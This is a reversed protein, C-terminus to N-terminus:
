YISSMHKKSQVMNWRHSIDRTPQHVTIKSTRKNRLKEYMQLTEHLTMKKPSYELLGRLVSVGEIWIATGPVLYPTMAHAVDGILCVKSSQYIRGPLTKQVLLELITSVRSDGNYAITKQRLRSPPLPVEPDWSEAVPTQKHYRDEEEGLCQERVVGVEECIM